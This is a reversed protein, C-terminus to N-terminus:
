RKDVLLEGRDPVAAGGSTVYGIAGGTSLRGRVDDAIGRGIPM